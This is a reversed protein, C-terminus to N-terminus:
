SRVIPVRNPRPYLGERNLTASSIRGIVLETRNPNFRRASAAIGLPPRIHRKHAGACTRACSTLKGYAHMNSRFLRAVGVQRAPAEATCPPSTARSTNVPVGRAAAPFKTEKRAPRSTPPHPGSNGDLAGLSAGLGLPRQSAPRGSRLQSSAQHRHTRGGQGM